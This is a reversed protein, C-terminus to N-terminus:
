IMLTRRPGLGCHSLQGPLTLTTTSPFFKDRTNTDQKSTADLQEPQAAQKLVRLDKGRLALRQRIVLENAHLCPSLSLSNQRLGRRIHRREKEACINTDTRALFRRIERACTHNDQKEERVLTPGNINSFQAVAKPAFDSSSRIISSRNCSRINRSCISIVVGSTIIRTTQLRINLRPQLRRCSRLQRASIPPRTRPQQLQEFSHLLLYTTDSIRVTVMAFNLWAKVIPATINFTSPMVCSTLRARPLFPTYTNTDTRRTM